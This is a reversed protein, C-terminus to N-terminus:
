ERIRRLDSPERDLFRCALAIAERVNAGHFGIPVSQFRRPSIREEFHYIPVHDGSPFPAPHM